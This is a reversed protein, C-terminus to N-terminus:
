KEYIWQIILHFEPCIIVFNWQLTKIFKYNNEIFWNIFTIIWNEYLIKRNNMLFCFPSCLLSLTTWLQMYVLKNNMPAKLSMDDTNNDTISHSMFHTFLAFSSIIHCIFLIKILLAFLWYCNDTQCNEM